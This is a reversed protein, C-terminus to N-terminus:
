NCTLSEGALSEEPQALEQVRDKGTTTSSLNDCGTWDGSWIEDPYRSALASEALSMRDASCM